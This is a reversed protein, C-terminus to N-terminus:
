WKEKERKAAVIAAFVEFRLVPEEIREAVEVARDIQGAKALASAIDKLAELRSVENEIMQAAQFARDFQRAKVLAEAIARLALSRFIKQTAQLANQLADQYAQEFKEELSLSSPLSIRPIPRPIVSLRRLLAKVTNSPIAFNLNQGGSLTFSAVGIVEGKRNFVPSGSSGKSVPATIQLLKRGGKLERVASVIGASVTGELAMPSGIVCIAEGVRVADSDGLSVFPLNRGEAQLVALDNEEDLALVSKIVLFSGDSRRAM